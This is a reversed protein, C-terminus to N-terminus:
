ERKKEAVLIMRWITNGSKDTFAYDVPHAALEIRKKLCVVLRRMNRGHFSIKNLNFSSGISDNMIIVVAPLQDARSFVFESQGNFHLEKVNGEIIMM